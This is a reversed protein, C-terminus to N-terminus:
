NGGYGSSESPDNWTYTVKSGSSLWPHTAPPQQQQKREQAAQWKKLAQSYDAEDVWFGGEFPTGVYKASVDITYEHNEYAICYLPKQDQIATFATVQRSSGADGGMDREEIRYATKSLRKNLTAADCRGAGSSLADILEPMGPSGVVPCMNLFAKRASVTAPWDLGHKNYILIGFYHSLSPTCEGPRVGSSLCLIAECALKTLGTLVPQSQLFRTAEDSAPSSAAPLAFFVAALAAAIRSFLKIHM